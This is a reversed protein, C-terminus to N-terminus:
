IFASINQGTLYSANKWNEAYDGLAGILKTMDTRRDIQGCM